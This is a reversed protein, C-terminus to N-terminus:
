HVFDGPGAAHLGGLSRAGAMAVRSHRLRGRSGRDSVCCRCARTPSAGPSKALLLLSVGTALLALYALGTAWRYDAQSLLGGASTSSSAGPMFTQGSLTVLPAWAQATCVSEDSALRGDLPGGTGEADASGLSKSRHARAFEAWGMSPRKSIQRV